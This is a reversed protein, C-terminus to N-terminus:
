IAPSAMDHWTGSTWAHREARTVEVYPMGSWCAKDAAAGAQGSFARQRINITQDSQRGGRVQTGM